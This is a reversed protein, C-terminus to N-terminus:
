RGAPPRRSRSPHTYPIPAPELLRGQPRRARVDAPRDPHRGVRVLQRHLPLGDVGDRAAARPDPGHDALRRDHRAQPPPAASVLGRGERGRQRDAAAPGVLSMQGWLVNFLQPLEDLSTRRLFGGVRTVRPDDRLKFLGETQNFEALEDRLQDAGDYMTRFKLMTFKRGDRGVRTQRFFAPGSRAPGCPWASRSADAARPRHAPRPLRRRRRSRKLFASSRSLGFSRVGLLTTGHIEDFEVSSGVVELLDPLVSVKIDHEKFYRVTELVRDRSECHGVIARDIGRGAVFRWFDGPRARRLEFSDFPLHAAIEAHAARHCDLKAALRTRRTRPQRDRPVARAAHGVPRDQARRQARALMSLFLLAWSLVTAGVMLPQNTEAGTVLAVLLAYLTAVQFIAPTESLTTKGIVLEDRDYLGTLKAVVILLPLGVYVEVPYWGGVVLM